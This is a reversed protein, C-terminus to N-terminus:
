VDKLRHPPISEMVAQTLDGHPDLLCVALGAEIDQAILNALLASKGTGNAGIIYLGQLRAKQSITINQGTKLDTGIVSYTEADDILRLATKATEKGYILAVKKILEHYREREQKCVRETIRRVFFEVDGKGEGKI